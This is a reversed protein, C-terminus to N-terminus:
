SFPVIEPAAKQASIAAKTAESANLASNLDSYPIAKKYLVALIADDDASWTPPPSTVQLTGTSTHDSPHLEDTGEESADGNLEPM